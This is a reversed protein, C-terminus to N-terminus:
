KDKRKNKKVQDIIDFILMRLPLELEKPMTKNKIWYGIWNDVMIEIKEENM